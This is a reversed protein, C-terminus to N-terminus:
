FGYRYNYVFEPNLLDDITGRTFNKVPAKYSAPKWIKGEADIFCWASGNILEQGKRTLYKVVRIYKAGSKVNEVKITYYNDSGDRKSVKELVELTEKLKNEIETAREQTFTM